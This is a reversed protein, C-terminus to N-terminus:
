GQTSCINQDSRSQFIVKQSTMLVASIHAANLMLFSSMGDKRLTFNLGHGSGQNTPNDKKGYIWFFFFFNGGLFFVTVRCCM